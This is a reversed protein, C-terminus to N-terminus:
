ARTPPRRCRRPPPPNAWRIRSEVPHLPPMPAPRLRMGTPPRPPLPVPPPVWADDRKNHKAVEARTYAHVAADASATATQGVPPLNLLRAKSATFETASLEGRKFQAALEVLQATVPSLKASAGSLAAAFVLAVLPPLVRVFRSGAMGARHLAPVLALAAATVPRALRRWQDITGVPGQVPGSGPVPLALKSSPM